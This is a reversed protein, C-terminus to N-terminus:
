AEPTFDVEGIVRVAGEDTVLIAAADPFRTELIRAADEEGAVFLATSLADAVLGSDDIVTVSALGSQAPAGTKPDLIHHYVVGDQVFFRQAGSSTAVAKGGYLAVRGVYGAGFPSDIAVVWPGGGPKDGLTVVNGGLNILASKVGRDALCAAAEDGIAGKAVAGLDLHAGGALVGEPTITVAEVGPRDLARAIEEAAPARANESKYDWLASVDMLAIDLNGETQKCIDLAAKLVRATLADVPVAEPGGANIRAIDSDELHASLRKECADVKGLAAQADEEGGGFVQVTVVTDLAFSQRTVARPACGSLSLGALLALLACLIRRMAM